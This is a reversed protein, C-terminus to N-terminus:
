SRRIFECILRAVSSVQKPEVNMPVDNETHSLAPLGNEDMGMITLARVHNRMPSTADTEEWSFDIKQMPIDLESATQTLLHLSRRDARRGDDYGEHTLTVLQGAGVSDLNLLFAGRIDRRFNALFSKTGAHGVSSGGVCVFWIDHAILFDDGLELIADQLDDADVDIVEVDDTSADTTDAGDGASYVASDMVGATGDAADADTMAAAGFTDAPAGDFTGSAAADGSADEPAAEVASGQSLEEAALGRIKEADALQVNTRLDERLAAGGKWRKLPSTPDSSTDLDATNGLDVDEDEFDKSGVLPDMTKQSVDPLDFLAARRAISPTATPPAYTSTGWNPDDIPKPKPREEGSAEANLNLGADSLNDLGTTDKPLIDDQDADHGMDLNAAHHRLASVQPSEPQESEAAPQDIPAAPEQAPPESEAPEQVAPEVDDLAEEPEEEDADAYGEEISDDVFDEEAYDEDAYNETAYDADAYDEDAFDEPAAEYAADADYAPAEDYSSQEVSSSRFRQKLRSWAGRIRDAVTPTAYEEILEDETWDDDVQDYAGSEDHSDHNDAPEDDEDLRSFDVTDGGMREEVVTEETEMEGADASEDEVAEQDWDLEAAAPQLVPADDPREADQDDTDASAQEAPANLDVVEVVEGAETPATISLDEGELAGEVAPQSNEKLESDQDLEDAPAPEAEVQANQVNEDHSQEEAPQDAVRVSEPRPQRHQDKQSTAEAAVVESIADTFPDDMRIPEPINPEPAEEAQPVLSVVEVDADAADEAPAVEAPEVAEQVAADEQLPKEGAQDASEPLTEEQAAFADAPENAEQPEAAEEAAEEVQLAEFSQTRQSLDEATVPKLPDLEEHISPDPAFATGSPREFVNYDENGDGSYTTEFESYDEGDTFDKGKRIAVPKDKLSSVANKVKTFVNQIRESVSLTGTADASEYADADAYPDFDESPTDASTDDNLDVEEVDDASLNEDDVTQDKADAEDASLDDASETAAQEGSDPVAAESYDYPVRGMESAAAAPVQAGTDQEALADSTVTTTGIVKPEEYIIQCDAPLIGLSKLVEKGHRVGHIEEYLPVEQPEAEVESARRVYPKGAIAADVRDEGPRVKSMVGLLAAVAAKNDNSGTTYSGFRELIAAIAVIVLPISAVLALVWIVLRAGSPIFGLMQILTAAGAVCTSPFAMKKIFAQYRALAGSYLVNQRPTDYHAVLVIPRAGKVVKDGTAHHLGVVNQSRKAPGFNEFVNTGMHKLVLLITAALVLVFALYKLAGTAVGCILLGLFLVLSVIHPMLQGLPHTDFEQISPKLGHDKMVEVITEAAQFEEQSNAPAIGIEDDLYDMYDRTKAM